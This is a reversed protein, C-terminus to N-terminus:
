SAMPAPRAACPCAWLDVAMPSGAQALLPKPAHPSSSNKLAKNFSPIGPPFASTARLADGRPFLAKFLAHDIAIDLAERVERQNVPAKKLNFSLHSINFAGPDESCWAQSATLATVTWM